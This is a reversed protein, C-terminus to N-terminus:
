EATERDLLQLAALEASALNYLTPTWEGLLDMLQPLGPCFVYAYQDNEDPEISPAELVVIWNPSHTGRYVTLGMPATDQHRVATFVTYGMRTILEPVACGDLMFREAVPDDEITGWQEPGNYLM